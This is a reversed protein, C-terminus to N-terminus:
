FRISKRTKILFARLETNNLKNDFTPINELSELTFVSTFFSNLVEAKDVDTDTMTRTRQSRAYMYVAKPNVKAERAIQRDFDRVAKRM